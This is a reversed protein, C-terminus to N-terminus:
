ISLYIGTQTPSPINLETYYLDIYYLDHEYVGTKYVLHKIFIEEEIYLLSYINM